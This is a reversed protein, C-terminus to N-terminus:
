IVCEAVLSCRVVARGARLRAAVRVASHQRCNEICGLANRGARHTM